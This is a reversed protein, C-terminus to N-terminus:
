SCRSQTGFTPPVPDDLRSVLVSRTASCGGTWSTELSCFDCLDDSALAFAVTVGGFFSCADSAVDRSALLSLNESSYSDEGHTGCVGAARGLAEVFPTCVSSQSTM